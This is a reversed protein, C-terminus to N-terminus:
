GSDLTLRLNDILRARGLYAAGLIVLDADGSHAPSLDSAVRVSLYDPRLGSELIAETAAREVREISEGQRLSEGAQRLAQYLAPARLREGADLYGNRSSMALGDAERVTAVGVIEVPMDLDEVLRRIVLLQQFDKEGFLAVDPQAMNLLKCVVTAVGAFHGPRTAGCLIDSLGPVEVRTQIEQGRPYVESTRPAFLLDCGEGALQRQDEALTRPYADLDEGPGFQLPNVFVTAVVREARARAERVLRLHGAHLNGMTPVLAVREGASRWAGVRERLDRVREIRDM